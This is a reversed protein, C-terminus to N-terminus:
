LKPLFTYFTAYIIEVSFSTFWAHLVAFSVLFIIIDKIEPIPQEQTKFSSEFTYTLFNYESMPNDVIKM